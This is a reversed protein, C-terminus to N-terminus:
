ALLQRLNVHALYDAVDQRLGYGHRYAAHRYDPHYQYKEGLARLDVTQGQQEAPNRAQRRDRGDHIHKGNLCVQLWVAARRSGYLYDLQSEAHQEQGNGDGVPELARLFPVLRRHWLPHGGDVPQLWAHCQDESYSKPHQVDLVQRECNRDSQSYSFSM